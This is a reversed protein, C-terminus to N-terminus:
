AESDANRKYSSKPSPPNIVGFPHKCQSVVKLVVKKMEEDPSSFERLLIEMIQSTYYNAYEEDM